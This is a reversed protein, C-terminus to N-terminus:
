LGYGVIMYIYIIIAFMTGDMGSATFDYGYFNLGLLIKRRLESPQPSLSLVCSEVWEIPSTPGPSPPPQHPTPNTPPPSSILHHWLIHVIMIYM